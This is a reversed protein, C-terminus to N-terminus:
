VVGTLGYFKYQQAFEATFEAVKGSSVIFRGFSHFLSTGDANYDGLTEVIHWTTGDYFVDDGNGVSKDVEIDLTTELTPDTGPSEAGAIVAWYVSVIAIVLAVVFHRM